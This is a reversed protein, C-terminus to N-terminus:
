SPAEVGPKRGPTVDRKAASKLGSLVTGGNGYFAIDEDEAEDALVGDFGVAAAGEVLETGASPRLGDLRAFLQTDERLRNLKRLDFTPIAGQPCRTDKV